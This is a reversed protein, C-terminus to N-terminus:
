LKLVGSSPHSQCGFCTSHNQLLYIGAYQQMENSSIFISDRHVSGHINDSQCTIHGTGSAATVTKHVGSPPPSLCGICTSNNTLLYVGAYQQMENSRIFISDRHVSGHISFATFSTELIHLSWEPHKIKVQFPVSWGDAESRVTTQHFPPLSHPPLKRGASLLIIKNRRSKSDWLSIYFALSLFPFNAIVLCPIMQLLLSNWQLYNSAFYEKHIHM